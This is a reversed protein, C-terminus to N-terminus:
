KNVLLANQSLRFWVDARYLKYDLNALNIDICDKIDLKLSGKATINFCLLLTLKKTLEEYTITYKIEKDSPHSKNSYKSQFALYRHIPKFRM